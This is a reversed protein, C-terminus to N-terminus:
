AVRTNREIKILAVMLTFFMFIILSSGAIMFMAYSGAKQAAAAIKEDRIRTNEKKAEVKAQSIYWELYKNGSFGKLTDKDLNTLEYTTLRFDKFYFLLSEEGNITNLNNGIIRFIKDKDASLSRKEYDLIKNINDYAGDSEARLAKIKEKDSNVSSQNENKATVKSNKKESSELFSKGMIPAPKFVENVSPNFMNFGILSFVLTLVLGVTALGLGIVRVIDLFKNEM